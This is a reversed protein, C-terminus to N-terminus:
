PTLQSVLGAEDLGSTELKKLEGISLLKLQGEMELAVHPVNEPMAAIKEEMERSSALNREFYELTKVMAKDKWAKPLMKNILKVQAPLLRDVLKGGKKMIAASIEIPM